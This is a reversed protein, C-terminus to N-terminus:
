RKEMKGILQIISAFFAYCMDCVLLSSALYRVISGHYISYLPPPPHFRVNENRM